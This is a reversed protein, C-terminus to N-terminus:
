EGRVIRMTEEATLYGVPEGGNVTDNMLELLGKDEEIENFGGYTGFGHIVSWNEGRYSFHTRTIPFYGGWSKDKWKVGETNLMERFKSMESM